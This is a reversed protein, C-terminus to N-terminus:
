VLQPDGRAPRGVQAKPHGILAGNEYEGESPVMDVAKADVVFHYRVGLENETTEIRPAPGTRLSPRSSDVM